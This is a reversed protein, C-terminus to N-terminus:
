SPKRVTDFDVFLSQAERVQLRQRDEELHNLNLIYEARDIEEGRRLTGQLVRDRQGSVVSGTQMDEM